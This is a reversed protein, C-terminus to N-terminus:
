YGQAVMDETIGEWIELQAKMLEQLTLKCNIQTSLAAQLNPSERQNRNQKRMSPVYLTAARDIYEGLDSPESQKPQSDISLIEDESKTPKGGSEGVLPQKEWDPSEMEIETIPPSNNSDTWEEIARQHVTEWM